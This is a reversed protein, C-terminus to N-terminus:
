IIRESASIVRDYKQTVYSIVCNYEVTRDKLWQKKILRLYTKRYIFIDVIRDAWNEQMLFLTDRVIGSASM